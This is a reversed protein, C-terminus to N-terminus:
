ALAGAGATKKMAKSLEGHMPVITTRNTKPNHMKQHGGKGGGKVKSFGNAQLYRVM